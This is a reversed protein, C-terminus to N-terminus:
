GLKKLLSFQFGQATATLSAELAREARALESAAAVADADTLNSAAKTAEDRGAKSAAVAADLTNMANGTETRARALQAVGTTLTDLAGRVGAVDNAGLATALGSLVALVDVGGGAGKVAVDARVSAAATVGPAIEIQKVGADGLYNGAADFPAADTQDGGFVYRGGVETNLAGLADQLLGQVESVAGARDAAGYTSSSLQVALEKARILATGVTGLAQDAASLEDSARAATTAIADLREAKARDLVALGAAGPDDKARSVRVGTSAVGIAKEAAASARGGDRTARDFIMRDTVRM